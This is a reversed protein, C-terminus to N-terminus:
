RPAALDRFGRGCLLCYGALGHHYAALAGVTNLVIIDIKPM